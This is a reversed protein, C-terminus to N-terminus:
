KVPIFGKDAVIEQGEPSFLYDIFVKVLRLGATPM